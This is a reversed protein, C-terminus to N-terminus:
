PGLVSIVQGTRGHSRGSPSDKFVDQLPFSLITAHGSFSNKIPVVQVYRNQHTPIVATLNSSAGKRFPAKLWRRPCSLRVTSTISGHQSRPPKQWQNTQPSAPSPLHPGALIKAPTGLVHHTRVLHGAKCYKWPGALIGRM